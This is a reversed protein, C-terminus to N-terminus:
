RAASPIMGGERIGNDPDVVNDMFAAEEVTRSTIKRSAAHEVDPAAEGDGEGLSAVGAEAGGLAEAVAM